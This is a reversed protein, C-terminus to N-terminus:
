SAETVVVSSITAAIPLAPYLAAGDAKQDADDAQGALGPRARRGQEAGSRSLCWMMDARVRQSRPGRPVGITEPRSMTTAAIKERVAPTFGKPAPWWCPM